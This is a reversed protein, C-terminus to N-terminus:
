LADTLGADSWCSRRYTPSHHPWTQCSQNVLSAKSYLARHMYMYILHLAPFLSSSSSSAHLTIHLPAAKFTPNLLAPLLGFLLVGVHVYPLLGVLAPATVALTCSSLWWVGSCPFLAEPNLSATMASLSVSASSFSLLFSPNPWWELKNRNILTECWLIRCWTMSHACLFVVCCWSKLGEECFLRRKVM